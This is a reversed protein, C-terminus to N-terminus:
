RSASSSRGRIEGRLEAVEERLKGLRDSTDKLTSAIPQLAADLVKAQANVRELAQAAVDDIAKDLQAKMVVDGRLVWVSGVVVTVASLVAIGVTAWKGVVRETLPQEEPPLPQKPPM